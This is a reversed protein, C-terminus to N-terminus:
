VWRDPLCLVIRRAILDTLASADSRAIADLAPRGLTVQGPLYRRCDAYEQEYDASPFALTLRTDPPDTEVCYLPNIHLRGPTERRPDLTHRTFVDPRRSAVITLAPASRLADADDARSLDVAGALAQALLPGDAFVRGGFSEFLERYARPPLPMGASPNPQLSNHAHTVAIVGGADVLREMEHALLAKTWVYHFADSCVALRFTGPAFPLATHADACVAECGPATFRRALWLKQFSWDLLVPSPTFAQLTRTLHGSGGCLDIARTAPPLAAQALARVVADAAIFTPDSFRYLFYRGEAFAPGLADVADRYTLGDRSAVRDYAAALDDDGAAFMVRLAAEPQGADILERAPDSVGEITLVAIGGVVPFRACHCALVASVIEDAERAIPAEDRVRVHGGCYPCRLIELTDARM